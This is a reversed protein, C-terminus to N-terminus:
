DESFKKKDFIGSNGITSKSKGYSKNGSKHEECRDLTIKSVYQPGVQVPKYVKYTLRIGGSIGKSYMLYDDTSFKQLWHTCTDWGYYVLDSEDNYKKRISEDDDTYIFKGEKLHSLCINLRETQSATLELMDSKFQSNFNDDLEYKNIMRGPNDPNEWVANYSKYKFHAHPIAGEPLDNMDNSKSWNSRYHLTYSKEDIKSFRKVKYM